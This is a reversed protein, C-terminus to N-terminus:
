MLKLDKQTSMYWKRRSYGPRTLLCAEESGTCGAPRKLAVALGSKPDELLGWSQPHADSAPFGHTQHGLNMGFSLKLALCGPSAQRLALPQWPPTQRPWPGTVM